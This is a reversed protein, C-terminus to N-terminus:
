VDDYDVAVTATTPHAQCTLIYGDAIEGDTLIQNKRMEAKGETLRAICTSCIGGQCSYPADLDKGLAAELISDTQKMTFTEIEDDITITITTMGDHEEVLLGEEATSFLEYHIAKENVGNLKLASSVADIMPEPGCLYFTDFITFKFKNKLFDNVLDQDIRGERSQEEKSRSFVFEPFFRQPYDQKLKMIENFFMTHKKSQNGYVLLFKSDPEQELVTTVISLVPTIGSGAVFAAYNNTAKKEPDVIFKGQPSMVELRDGAELKDNAFISFSGGEVKKIGVSLKGSEPTSCISYARRIEEGNHSHKVTIYQGASFNFEGKLVLPVAFTVVVANPTEKRVESVKLSHFNSMM